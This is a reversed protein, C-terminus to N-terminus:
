NLGRHQGNRSEKRFGNTKRQSSNANPQGYHNDSSAQNSDSYKSGTFQIDQNELEEQIFQKANGLTPLQIEKAKIIFPPLKWHRQEEDWETKAKIKYIQEDTM